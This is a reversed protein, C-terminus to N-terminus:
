SPGDALADDWWAQRLHKPLTAAVDAAEEPVVRRLERLVAAAVARDCRAEACGARRAAAVVEDLTDAQAAGPAAPAARVLTRLDQPLHDLLQVREGEPVRAAFAAIVAGVVLPAHGPQVGADLAAATMRRLVDSPPQRTARGQSPRTDSPLLGIHLHSDVGRVGPVSGVARVLAAAERAWGVDGHLLVVGDQVAVHVRPLDLREQVPGLGTRVRDALELDSVELRRRQRFRRAARGARSPAGRGGRARLGIALGILMGALVVAAARAIRRLETDRV